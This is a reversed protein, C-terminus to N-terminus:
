VTQFLHFSLYVTFVKTIWICDARFCCSRVTALLMVLLMALLMALIMALLNAMLLPPVEPLLLLPLVALRSGLMLGRKCGFKNARASCYKPMAMVAM